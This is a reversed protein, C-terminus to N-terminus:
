DLDAAAPVLGPRCASEGAAEAQSRRQLPHERVLPPVKPRMRTRAFAKDLADRTRRNAEPILYGHVDVNTTISKQGFLGAPCRSSACETRRRCGSGSRDLLTARLEALRARSAAEAAFSAAPRVTM